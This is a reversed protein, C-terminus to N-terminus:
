MGQAETSLRERIVQKFSPKLWRFGLDHDLRHNIYHDIDGALSASATELRMRPFESLNERIDAEDRSSLLIKLYRGQVSLKRLSDLISDREECEDLADIVIAIGNQSTLEVLLDIITDVNSRKGYAPATMKSREFAAELAAPFSGLKFCIQALISGIINLHDRTEPTRFDCYYYAVIASEKREGCQQLFEVVTSMLITKGSGPFGSLWLFSTEARQWEEFEKCSLFWDNTGLQRKRMAAEHSVSPDVPSLWHLIERKREDLSMDQFQQFLTRTNEEVDKMTASMVKLLASQDM